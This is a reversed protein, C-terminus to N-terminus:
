HTAVIQCNYGQQNYHYEAIIRIPTNQCAPGPNLYELYGNAVSPVCDTVCNGDNIDFSINDYTAFPDLALRLFAFSGTCGGIPATTDEFVWFDNPNVVVEDSLNFVETECDGCVAFVSIQCSTKNVFIIPSNQASMLETIFIMCGLSLFLTLKLM